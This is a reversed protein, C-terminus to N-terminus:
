EAEGESNLFVDAGYEKGGMIRQMNQAYPTKLQTIIKEAQPTNAALIQKMMYSNFRKSDGGLEAYRGAFQAYQEDDPQGNAIVSTKVTEALFQKRETDVAKYVSTRYTADNVIAEDLPRGGALRAFSMLSVLDNSGLITGKGSTAFVTGGNSFGQAVQALGALPRSLGNHEVGQLVTQWVSGGAIIKSTVDKLNGLFTSTASIAPIDLPNLPIISPHRPNIDGRSYLNTHLLNSPAGYLLWNGVSNGFIGYTSSYLDRHESNGSATGVIHTNIYNFAPLGNLGYLTGQLGLLTAADKGAGEGVHRFLQQMLNFQYTQFLGVAQGVAGQFILPRQSALFNGQTRNVFTNIYSKAEKSGIVGAQVGLDTIQKMVDAAIFRNFEEAFKNGTFAEGKDAGAKMKAFASNLKKKITGESETGVLTLDDLISDFQQSIDTIWGNAKYEAKLAPSIASDFYRQMSKGILKSPATITDPMGPLTIDKLEGLKGAAESNGQKIARILAKTETGLLVNAGIVNNISNLPDLRLTLTSLISNASRVFNALVNKPASHNALLVAATDGYASKIGLKQFIANVEGLDEPSKISNWADDVVQMGKSFAKDVTENFSTLLPVENKQTINLMTKIYSVYPNKVTDGAYKQISSSGYKSTAIGTYQDGLRRLEDMVPQYKASVVERAYTRDRTLHDDLWDKTIKSPDTKQLFQSNVGAKRLASDIYNDHLTRDFDYSGQAQYFEEAQKKTYVNLNSPVKEILRQLEVESAAHIMTTHGAAGATVTPDKVFAFFKYDKPNPRVPYFTRPDKSDELGQVARIEKTKSVRGGSVEIHAAVADRTIQNQIPITAPAGPQLEPEKLNKAGRAVKDLYDQVSRAVLETGDASLIYHEATGAVKEQLYQFEIAAEKNNVLQYAVSELRTSTNKMVEKELQATASGIQEAFSAASGYNGNSFAFLKGGAGYQNAKLLLEKPFEIFRQYLSGTQSAVVNDVAEMYIKSKAELWSLGQLMMGNVENMAARDYGVKMVSPLLSLDTPADTARRLGKDVLEEHYKATYSEHAFIDDLENPSRAGDLWSVRTNVIRAIPDIDQGKFAPSKELTNAVRQKAERLADLIDDATDLRFQQGKSDELIMHELSGAKKQAYAKQLLPIDNEHVEAFVRPLATQNRAWYYRAEAELHSTVKTADWLKKSNFGYAAIKEEVAAAITQGARPVVTDAINPTRPAVSSIIGKGEGTLGVYQVSNTDEKLPLKKAVAKANEKAIQRSAVEVGLDDALRGIQTAYAFGERVTQANAGVLSDALMNGLVPDASASMEHVETRALNNLKTLKDSRLRNLKTANDATDALIGPTAEVDEFRQILREAPSAIKPLESISTFPKEAENAIKVESRIAGYVKAANFAGGIVGSVGAGLLVNKAIDWGDAQDLVPSKFMTAAVALEFAAGELAAGGVGSALAKITGSTLNSFAAQGAVIQQAAEKTLVTTPRFLGLGAAVNDGLTGAAAAERLALKGASLIKTGGIGPVLSSVIFGALDIDEKNAVYYASLDSDINALDTATDKEELDAGFFNGIAVGTNYFGNRGSYAAGLIFKGANDLSQGWTSPDTFAFNGNGYNHSDLANYYSPLADAGSPVPDQPAVDNSFISFDAM